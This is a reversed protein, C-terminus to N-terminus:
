ARWARVRGAPLAVAAAADATELPVRNERGPGEGVTFGDDWAAAAEAAFTGDDM